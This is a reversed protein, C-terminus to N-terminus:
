GLPPCRLLWAVLLLTTRASPTEIAARQADDTAAFWAEAAVGAVEQSALRRSVSALVGAIGARKIISRRDM